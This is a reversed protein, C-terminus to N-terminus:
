QMNISYRSSEKVNQTMINRTFSNMNRKKAKTRCSFKIEQNIKQNM